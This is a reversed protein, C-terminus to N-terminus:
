VEFKLVSKTGNDNEVTYTGKLQEALMKVITLGFGHSKNLEINKDIGIGNDKINLTVINDVKEISIFVTGKDHDKFAYKFVNTLLENIIIGISIAQKSLILFDSIHKEIVINQKDAFVNHLSDIVTEIYNKISIERLDKTLLLKDYVIRMSQVRFVAQQLANKIEPNTTLGSQISLLSEINSMNNKVRHHVEKLLTDKESLQHHLEEQLRRSETIDIFTIVAGDIVNDLTRYPFINM